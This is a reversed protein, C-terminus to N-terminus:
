FVGTLTWCDASIASEFGIHSPFIGADLWLNRKGSLKVGINAEYIFQAWTPETSLNYQAYNGFMLGINTRYNKDQYKAKVLFLNMNVENHRKHNYIFGPKTKNDPKQFDYSYYVEAYYNLTVKGSDTTQAALVFPHFLLILLTLNKM